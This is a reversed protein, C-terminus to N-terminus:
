VNGIYKESLRQLKEIFDKEAKDIRIKTKVYKKYSLLGGNEKYEKYLKKYDM